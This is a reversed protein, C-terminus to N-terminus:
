TSACGPFSPTVPASTRFRKAVLVAVAGVADLKAEAPGAARLDRGAAFVVKGDAGVSGPLHRDVIRRGSM